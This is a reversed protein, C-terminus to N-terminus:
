ALAPHAVSAVADSSRALRDLWERGKRIEQANRVRSEELVRARDVASYAHEPAKSYRTLATSRAIASVQAPDGPIGFHALIRGLHGEVDALFADFDVAMVRNALRGVLDHETLTEALWSMAALEGISLTHLAASVPGIRAELRRMREPGHGRLDLASNEGALLTALYPEAGVNLYICRAAPYAGLIPVALRGASSTAKLIVCRTADYGRAWLRLCMDRAAEFQASSLLSDPHGLVDHAEALSRLPLPERLPLVGGAEDLLRSVLTSGVHGTHFIFHLPVSRRVGRARNAIGQIPFWGGATKPGLIRDDLFSATRYADADIRVILVAERVFDLQHPYSDPSTPLAALLEQAISPNEVSVTASKTRM